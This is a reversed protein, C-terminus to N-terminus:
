SHLDIGGDRPADDRDCVRGHLLTGPSRNTPDATVYAFLSTTFYSM